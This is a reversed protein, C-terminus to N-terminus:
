ENHAKHNDIMNVLYPGIINFYEELSLNNFKDGRSEYEMYSGDFSEIFKIPEYYEEEIINNNNFLNGIENIGKHNIDVIINYKYRKLKNLYEKLKELYKDTNKLKKNANEIEQKKEEMTLSDDQEIEILYQPIREKLYIKKRINRIKKRSFNNRLENFIKKTDEIETNNYKCKQLERHSKNSKFLAILLDEKLM